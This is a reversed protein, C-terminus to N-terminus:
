GEGPVLGRIPQGLKLHEIRLLNYIYHPTHAVIIILSSTVFITLYTSAVFVQHCSNLRQFSHLSPYLSNLECFQGRIKVYVMICSHGWVKYVCVCFLFCKLNDMKEM